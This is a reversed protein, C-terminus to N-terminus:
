SISLKTRIYKEMEFIGTIKGGIFIIINDEDQIYLSRNDNLYDFKNKYSIFYDVYKFNTQFDIYDTSIKNEMKNKIEIFHNNDMKYNIIDNINHSKYLPTYEVDTLTYYKKNYSNPYPYLSYFLGDMVTISFDIDLNNIKEYILSLCIETTFNKKLKQGCIKSMNFSCDFIYDYKINKYTKNDIDIDNEDYNFDIDKKYEDFYLIAKNFNIIKEEVIYSSVVNNINLHTNVPKINFLKEYELSNVISNKHIFYYNNTNDEIVTPYKQLMKEYGTHCEKVTELSRPYHYGLHLRNQNKSSSGMFIDNNIELIKYVINHEKLVSAIHLGYWGAGIILINM